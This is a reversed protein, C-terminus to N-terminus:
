LVLIGDNVEEESLGAVLWRRTLDSYSHARNPYAIMLVVSFMALSSIIAAYQRRPKSSFIFSLDELASALLTLQSGKLRTRRSM